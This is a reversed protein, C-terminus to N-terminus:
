PRRCVRATLRHHALVCADALAVGQPYDGSQAQSRRSTALMRKRVVGFLYEDTSLKAYPASAWIGALLGALIAASNSSGGALALGAPAVTAGAVCASPAGFNLGPPIRSTGPSIRDQEGIPVARVIRPYPYAAPYGAVADGRSSVAAVVIAADPGPAAAVQEFLADLEPTSHTWHLSFSLVKAGMRIAYRMAAATRQLVAEPTDPRCGGIRLVMVRVRGAGAGAIGISNNRRGAILSATFTGHQAKGSCAPDPGIDPSNRVFDWGHLDDTYGNGDDDIGPKGAAEAANTWLADQLELHNPDAGDDFIAVTLPEAGAPAHWILPAATYDIWWASRNRYLCDNTSHDEPAASPLLTPCILAACDLDAARTPGSLLCAGAFAGLGLVRVFLLVLGKRPEDEIM